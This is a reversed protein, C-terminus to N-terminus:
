AIEALPDRDECLMCTGDAIRRHQGPECRRLRPSMTTPRRTSQWAEAARRDIACARCPQDHDWSPHRRCTRPPASARTGEEEKEEEEGVSSPKQGTMRGSVTRDDSMFRGTMGSKVPRNEDQRARTQESPERGTMLPLGAGDMLAYLSTRGRGRRRHELLAARTLPTVARRTARLGAEDNAHGLIEAIAAAGGFYTPKPDADRAILAMYVFACRSAYPVGAAASAVLAAKALGAGMM